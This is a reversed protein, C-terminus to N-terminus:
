KLKLVPTIRVANSGVNGSAAQYETTKTGVTVNFLAAGTSGAIGHMTQTAGTASVSTLSVSQGALPQQDSGFVNVELVQLAGALGETMLVPNLILTSAGAQTPQSAPANARQVQLNGGDLANDPVRSALSYTCGATCELHFRDPTASANSNGPEGNDEVCVRFSASNKNFKGSGRMELTRANDTIAGCSGEVPGLSTVTALHIKVDAGKDNLQLEGQFGADVQRANFGFNIKGGGNDALWGGGTAQDGEDEPPPPNDRCLQLTWSELTGEDLPFGDAVHLTWDGNPDEGNFAALAEIPRFTGGSLWDTCGIARAAADDFEADIGDEGTCSAGDFLTIETGTPSLLTFTLDGMYPHAGKLNRVNIDTLPNAAGSVTATTTSGVLSLIPSPVPMNAPYDTCEQPPPPPPGDDGCTFVEVRDVYWGDNGNCGDQGFDWRLRITDGAAVGAAALDVQSQGWDNDGSIPNAGTFAEEGRKPNTNQDTIDNLSSNYANHVFASGPVVSYALPPVPTFIGGNISIMLNGGDYNSETLFYHEFMLSGPGDAAVTIEPSIMYLVGSEDDDSCNGLDVRNEQFMASGPRGKPLDGSRRFWPRTDLQAKTLPTQGITWGAPIGSEWDVAFQREITAGGCMPAPAPDLPATFGCQQAVDHRMEVAAIANVVQQCDSATIVEGSLEPAPHLTDDNAGMFGTGNEATTALKTLNVGTLDECAMLLSDANDAFNSAPGNYLSNARWFIHAAKTLGIGTVTVPNAFPTGDDKLEVTDGDVLLAYARNNISSNYHVGGADSADCHYLDSSGHGPNGLFLNGGACRPRWMDRIAADGVPPLPSFAFADEGILWRISEDSTPIESTFSSCVTDDQSRPGDHGTLPTTGAITERNNILDVTEGFVDSYSENLAGSQYSYILGSTEQTYAHTWEHAVVDDASTGSCYNTSTGNWNANPCVITPDNNVTIMPADGGDWSRYTGGSLNLFLNYTQGAGSVEDEHAPQVAPRMDGEQWAPPAAINGEHVRRSKSSNIATVQDVLKGTLADIYVFERIHEAGTVQVEYALHNQGPAGRTLNTRYVVLSASKV